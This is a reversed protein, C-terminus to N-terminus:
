GEGKRVAQCEGCTSVSVGQGSGELQGRHLLMGRFGIGDQSIPIVLCFWPIRLADDSRGVLGM